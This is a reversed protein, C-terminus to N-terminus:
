LWPPASLLRRIIAVFAGALSAVRWIEFRLEEMAPKLLRTAISSCLRLSYVRSPTTELRRRLFIVRLSNSSSGKLTIGLIRELYYIFVVARSEVRVVLGWVLFFRRYLELYSLWCCGFVARSCLPISFFVFRNGIFEEEM